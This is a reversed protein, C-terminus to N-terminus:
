FYTFKKIKLFKYFFIYKKSPIISVIGQSDGCTTIPLYIQKLLPILLKIKLKTNLNLHEITLMNKKFLKLSLIRQFIIM